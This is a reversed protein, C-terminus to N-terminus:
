RTGRPSRRSDRSSTAARPTHTDAQDTDHAAPTRGDSRHPHPLARGPHRPTPVRHAPVASPHGADAGGKTPAATAPPDGRRLVLPSRTTAGSPHHPYTARGAHTPRPPGGPRHPPRPERRVPSVDCVSLASVASMRVSRSPPTPHRAQPARPGPAPPHGVPAVRTSPAAGNPPARWPSPPRGLRPIDPVHLGPGADPPIAPGPRQCACTARQRSRGM